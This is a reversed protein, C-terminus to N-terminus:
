RNLKEDLKKARKRMADLEEDTLKATAASHQIIPIQPKMKSNKGKSTASTDVKEVNGKNALKEKYANKERVYEVAQEYTTIQKGLMDVAVAEISARSWSRRDVYIFHILVNMVAQNLKYNFDLKEFISLLGDPISGKAFFKKLVFLYSENRLMYNYQHDNCNASLIQPTPLYFSMEVAQEKSPQHKHIDTSDQQVQEDIRAFHREREDERKKDQRFQLNANYQLRDLELDGDPSFIGEEDLLRSTEQLSLHYKKAIMNIAIVQDPKFKLAEVYARNLSERPFRHLIDAYQFSRTMVDLHAQSQDKASAQTFMQEIEYDIVKSNLRFLDYFPVSINEENHNSIQEQSPSLFENSLHLLMYKGVKDRLLLVLHQNRFFEFPPLPPSLYYEYIYEDDALRVTRMTRLLGTAELKSTQEIFYKRGKESPELELSLFLKRQQEQESAGLVDAKLHHYLTYYISIAYGGIMPQYIMTLMKYDLASLSFNRKVVYRHQETFHLMNTIKM